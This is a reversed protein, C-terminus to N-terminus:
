IACRSCYVAPDDNCHECWPEAKAVPKAQLQPVEIRRCNILSLLSEVHKCHGCFTNGKCTCTHHGSLLDINVHYVDESPASGDTSIKKVEFGMGFDAPIQKLWYAFEEKGITMELLAPTGDYLHVRREPKVRPRSKTSSAM